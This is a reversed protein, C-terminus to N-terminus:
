VSGILDGYVLRRQAFYRTSDLTPHGVSLAVAWRRHGVAPMRLRGAAGIQCPSRRRGSRRPGRAPRRRGPCTSRRPAYPNPRATAGGPPGRAPRPPGGTSRTLPPAATRALLRAPELEPQGVTDLVGHRRAQGRGPSGGPIVAVGTRNVSAAHRARRGEGSKGRGRAPAVSRQRERGPRPDRGGDGADVLAGDSREDGGPGVRGPDGAAPM